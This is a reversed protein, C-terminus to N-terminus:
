RMSPLIVSVGTKRNRRLFRAMDPHHLHEDIATIVVWDAKGRAEKWVENQLYTASLVFSDTVSREFRRVEVKARAAFMALTRDTSGDDYVIYREIWPDYHRFFFPLMREENWSMTYLWVRM